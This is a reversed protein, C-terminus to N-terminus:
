GNRNKKKNRKRAPAARAFEPRAHGPRVPESKSHTLGDFLLRMFYAGRNKINKNQAISQALSMLKAEDHEKALKIYLAKHPQDELIEALLLGTMQYKRYIRSKKARKKIEQLYEESFAM